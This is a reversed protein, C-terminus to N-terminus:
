SKRQDYPLRTPPSGRITQPAVLIDTLVAPRANKAIRTNHPRTRRIPGARKPTRQNRSKRGPASAAPAVQFLSPPEALTAGSSCFLSSSSAYSQFAYRSQQRRKLLSAKLPPTQSPSSAPTIRHRASRSSPRHHSLSPNARTPSTKAPPNSRTSTQRDILSLELSM